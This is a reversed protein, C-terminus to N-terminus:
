EVPVTQNSLFLNSNEALQGARFMRAAFLRLHFHALDSATDVTVVSPAPPYHQMLETSIENFRDSSSLSSMLMVVADHPDGAAEEAENWLLGRKVAYEEKSPLQSATQVMGEFTQKNEISKRIGM